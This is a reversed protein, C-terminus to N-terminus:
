RLSLVILDIVGLGAFFLVWQWWKLHVEKAVAYEAWTWLIIFALWLWLSKVHLLIMVIFGVTFLATVIIFRWMAPKITNMFEKRFLHRLLFSKYVEHIHENM